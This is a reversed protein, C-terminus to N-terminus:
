CATDKSNNYAISAVVRPTVGIVKHKTRKPIYILDGENIEYDISSNSNSGLESGLYESEYVRYITKGHLGLIYIEEQDTHAHGVQSVFSFFLDVEDEKDKKYSFMKRIFHFVNFLDKSSFSVSRIQFVDRLHGLTTKPDVDIDNEELLQSIFNFDHKTKLSIFNKIMTVKNSKISEIKEPLILMM